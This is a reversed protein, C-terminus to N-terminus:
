ISGSNPKVGPTGFRWGYAAGLAGAQDLPVGSRLLETAKAFGANIDPSGTSLRPTPARDM